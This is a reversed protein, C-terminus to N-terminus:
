SQITESNKIETKVQSALLGNRKMCEEFIMQVIDYDMAEIEELDELSNIDFLNVKSEDCVSMAIAKAMLKFMNTFNETSIKINEIESPDNSGYINAIEGILFARQKGSWKLINIFGDWAKVEFPEGTLLKTEKIKERTVFSM